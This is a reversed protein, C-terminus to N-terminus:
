GNVMYIENNAKHSRIFCRLRLKRDFTIATQFQSSRIETKIEKREEIKKREKKKRERM